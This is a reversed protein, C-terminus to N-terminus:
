RTATKNWVQWHRLERERLATDLKWVNRFTRVTVGKVNALTAVGELTVKAAAGVLAPKDYAGLVTTVSPVWGIDPKTITYRHRADQYSVTIKGDSSTNSEALAMTGTNTM